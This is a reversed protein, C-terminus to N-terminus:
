SYKVNRGPEMEYDLLLEASTHPRIVEELFKCYVPDDRFMAQKARNEFDIAVFFPFECRPDIRKGSRVQLAEPIKLLLSKTRRVMEELTEQSVEPHLRYLAVHHVM